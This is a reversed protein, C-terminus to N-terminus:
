GLSALLRMVPLADAWTDALIDPLDASFAEEDSLRRGFTVDRHRLLDGERHDKPFGQPVRSLTEGTVGGFRAVFAPDDVAAHVREPQEDVLRRWAALKAPEPHWMGGGAYIEGPGMHFYAGPGHHPAEGPGEWWPFDAGLHTKYPSKDRSFRVDRYIRFPSRVPDAHLPLGQAAPVV